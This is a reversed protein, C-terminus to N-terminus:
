KPQKRLMIVFTVWLFVLMGLATRVTGWDTGLRTTTPKMGIALSTSLGFLPWISGLVSSILGLRVTVKRRRPILLIINILFPLYVLAYM